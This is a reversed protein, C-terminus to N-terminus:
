CHKGRIIIDKINSSMELYLKERRLLGILENLGKTNLMGVRRLHKLSEKHDYAM